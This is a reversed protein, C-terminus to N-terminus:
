LRAEVYDMVPPVAYPWFMVIAVVPFYMMAVNGANKWHSGWAAQGNTASPVRASAYSRFQQIGARQVRTRALASLIPSRAIPSM